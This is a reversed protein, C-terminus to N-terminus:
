KISKFTIWYYQTNIGSENIIKFQNNKAIYSIEQSSFSAGKWTNLNRDGMPGQIGKVQFRFICNPKLVRSIERIYKKIIEKDPIHQFVIFSYCFDFTNDSFMSLDSGNNEFVKCNSTQQIYKDGLEIMKKSIDIGIVKGFIKGMPILIRGIGCGIELIEMNKPNKSKIIKSYIENHMGLINDRDDFGSKWFNEENENISHIYYMANKEARVDWDTKMWEEVTKGEKKSILLDHFIHSDFYKFSNKFKNIFKM